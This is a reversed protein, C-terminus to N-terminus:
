GAAITKEGRARCNFRKVAKMLGINGEQILDGLALGYGLYARAIRVVFRLHSLVLHQAAELDGTSVYRTALEHEEDATLLPVRNIKEIYAELSGIPIGLALPQLSLSTTKM